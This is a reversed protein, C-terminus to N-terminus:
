AGDIWESSYKSGTLKNSSFYKAKTKRRAFVIRLIAMVSLVILAALNFKIKDM